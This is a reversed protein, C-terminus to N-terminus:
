SYKPFPFLLFSIYFQWTQPRYCQFIFNPPLELRLFILLIQIPFFGPGLLLLTLRVCPNQTFMFSHNDVCKKKLSVTPKVVQKWQNTIAQTSKCRSQAPERECERGEIEKKGEKRGEKM